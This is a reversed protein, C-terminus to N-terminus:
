YGRGGSRYSGGSRQEMPRALNVTLARGGIEKGNLGQIAAQAEAPTAMEVFGFGKSRGSDREMMIKATEVHGFAAFQQRLDDDRMSYSLNGVYLKNEMLAKLQIATGARHASGANFTSPTLVRQPRADVGHGDQSPPLGQPM